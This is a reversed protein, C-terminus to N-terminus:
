RYRLTGIVSVIMYVAAMLVTIVAIGDALDILGAGNAVSYAFGGVLGVGLALAIADVLIKRQLDDVQRLFRAHAVIWAIGLAINLGVAIWSIAPQDGWLQPGFKALALSGIWLVTWFALVGANRFAREDVSKGSLEM